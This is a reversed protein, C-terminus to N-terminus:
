YCIHSYHSVFFCHPSDSPFCCTHSDRNDSNRGSHAKLWCHLCRILIATQGLSSLLSSAALQIGGVESRTAVPNSIPTPNTFSAANATQTSGLDIVVVESRTATPNSIPGPDNNPNDDNDNDNNNDDDEDTDLSSDATSGDYTYIVM